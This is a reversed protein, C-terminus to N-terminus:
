RKAKKAPAQKAAALEASRRERKAAMEPLHQLATTRRINNQKTSLIAELVDPDPPEVLGSEVLWARWDNWGQIDRVPFVRNGVVKFSHWRDHHLPQGSTTNREVRMYSQGDQTANYDLIQFGNERHWAQTQLDGGRAAHRVGNVGPARSMRKIRPLWRGGDKPDDTHMVFEWQEPHVMFRFAPAGACRLPPRDNVVEGAYSEGEYQQIAM